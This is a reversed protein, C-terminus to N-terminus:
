SAPARVPQALPGQESYELLTKSDNGYQSLKFENIKQPLCAYNYDLSTTYQSLWTLGGTFGKTCYDKAVNPDDTGVVFWNPYNNLWNNTIAQWQGHNSYFGITPLLTTKNIASIMGSLVERNQIFDSTWSNDTEVDLWWVFSHADQSSAYKLSYLVDDYGYNFALCNGDNPKCNNPYKSYKSGFNIGPYGTNLYLAYANHFLATQSHLCLNESYDLGDNVGVIGTTTVETIKQGCNPWSLDLINSTDAYAQGVQILLLLSVILLTLFILLKDGRPM